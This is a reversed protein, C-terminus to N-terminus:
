QLFFDLNRTIPDIEVFKVVALEKENILVYCFNTDTNTGSQKLNKGDAKKSFIKFVNLKGERDTISITFLPHEKTLLKMTEARHEVFATAKISKFCFLYEEVAEKKFGQLKGSKISTLIAKGKSSIELYFSQDPNRPQEVRISAIQDQTYRLITMDRWFEPRVQFLAAFNEQVSSLTVIFPVQRDAMMMYIYRNQKDAWIFYHRLTKDEVKLWIETGSHKLSDAIQLANRDSVPSKIEVQTFIKHCLSMLSPKVIFTSNYYWHNNKKNLTVVSDGNKLSINSVSSLDSCAFASEKNSLTNNHNSFFYVASVIGLVILIALSIINKKLM